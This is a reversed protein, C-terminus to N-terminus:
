SRRGFVLYLILVLLLLGGISGGVLPGGYYFGGGGGFVLLLLLIILLTSMLLWLMDYPSGSHLGQRFVRDSRVNSDSTQEALFPDGVPGVPPRRKSFGICGM